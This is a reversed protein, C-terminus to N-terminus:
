RTKALVSWITPVLLAALVMKVVDGAIFPVVGHLLASELGVFHSLWAFGLGFIVVEGAAMAALLRWFSRDAGREAFWGILAAAVLYGLLYGATPGMMYALGIGHEPTGAFVPLGVAGEVLYLLVTATALRAGLTSALLMLALTQLTLPVPVFPVAIRASLALVASGIMALLVARMARASTSSQEPWVAGALTPRGPFRIDTM